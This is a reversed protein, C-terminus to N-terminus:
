TRALLKKAQDILQQRESREAVHTALALLEQAARPPSYLAALLIDQLSTAPRVTVSGPACAAKTQVLVEAAWSELDACHKNWRRALEMRYSVALDDDTASAIQQQWSRDAVQTALETLLRRIESPTMCGTNEEDPHKLGPRWLSDPSPGFRLSPETVPPVPLPRRPQHPRHHTM